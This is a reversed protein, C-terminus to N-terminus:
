PIRVEVATCDVSESGNFARVTYRYRAGSEVERDTFILESVLPGNVRMQAGDPLTARYVNYGRVDPSTSASWRLTVSHPRPPELGTARFWVVFLVMALGAVVVTGWIWVGRRGETKILLIVCVLLFACALGIAGFVVAWVTSGQDPILSPLHHHVRARVLPEVWLNEAIFSILAASLMWVLWSITRGASRMIDAMGGSVSGIIGCTLLGFSLSSRSSSRRLRNM